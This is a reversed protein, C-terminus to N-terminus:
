QNINTSNVEGMIVALEEVAGNKIRYYSDRSWVGHQRGLTELVYDEKNEDFYRLRIVLQGREKLMGVALELLEVESQLQLLEKKKDGIRAALDGTSDSTGSGHPMDTYVQTTKVGMASLEKELYALRDCNPKYRTLRKIVAYYYPPHKTTTQPM